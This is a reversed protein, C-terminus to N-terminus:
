GRSPLHPREPKWATETLMDQVDGRDYDDDWFRPAYIIPASGELMPEPVTDLKIRRVDDLAAIQNVATASLQAGMINGLAVQAYVTGGANEIETRVRQQSPAVHNKLRRGIERRMQGTQTDLSEHMVRVEAKVNLPLAHKQRRFSRIRDRVETSKANIDPQFRTKVADSIQRSPPKDQLYIAVSITSQTQFATLVSADVKSEEAACWRPFVSIILLAVLVSRFAQMANQTFM